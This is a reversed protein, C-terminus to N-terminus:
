RTQHVVVSLKIGTSEKKISEELELSMGRCEIDTPVLINMTKQVESMLSQYVELHLRVCYVEDLVLPIM